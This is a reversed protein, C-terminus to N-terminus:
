DGGDSRANAILTVIKNVYGETEPFPPVGGYRTTSAVNRPVVNLTAANRIRGANM